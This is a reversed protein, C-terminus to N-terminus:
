QSPLARKTHGLSSSPSREYKTSLHLEVLPQSSERDCFLEAMQEFVVLKVDRYLLPSSLELFALSVRSARALTSPDCHKLGEHYIEIPFQKLFPSVLSLSSLAEIDM